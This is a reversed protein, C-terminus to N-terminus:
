RSRAWVLLVEFRLRWLGSRPREIETAFISLLVPRDAARRAAGRDGGRWPAPMDPGGDGILYRRGPRGSSEVGFMPQLSRSHAPRMGRLVELVAAVEDPPRDAEAEGDPWGM